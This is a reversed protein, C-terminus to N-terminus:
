IKKDVVLEDQLEERQGMLPQHENLALAFHVMIEILFDYSHSIEKALEPYIEEIAQKHMSIVDEPAVRKQILQRIFNQGIYLNRETQEAIYDAMIKQYEVQIKELERM